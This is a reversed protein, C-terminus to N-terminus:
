ALNERKAHGPGNAGALRSQDLRKAAGEPGLDIERHDGVVDVRVFIGLEEGAAFCQRHLADHADLGAAARVRRDAVVGAGVEAGHGVELPLERPM